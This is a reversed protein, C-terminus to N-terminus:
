YDSTSKKSTIVILEYFVTHQNHKILPTGFIDQIRQELI